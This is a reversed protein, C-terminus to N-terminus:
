LLFCTLQLVKGNSRRLVWQFQVSSGEKVIDNGEGIIADYYEVGSPLKVSSKVTTSDEAVAVLLLVDANANHLPLLPSTTIFSFSTIISLISKKILTEGITVSNTYAVKSPLKLKFCKCTFTTIFVLALLFVSCCKM